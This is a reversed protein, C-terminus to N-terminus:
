HLCRTALALLPQPWVGLLLMGAMCIFLVVRVTWPVTIRTAAEPAPDAWAGRLVRLYYFLAIVAGAVAIGALAYFTPDIRARMVTAVLVFFKGLAGGLPPVGALSLMALLLALALLPSRRHLGMLTHRDATDHANAVVTLVAFVAIVAFLYQVLYYIVAAHGFDGGAAIGLLLFGANAISSYGLLRKVDTQALGGLAGYLLTIAALAMLVVPKAEWAPPLVDAFVLRLLVVFGAIKSGSALFAAAPTPAGQYVDPAWIQMPVMALKFGLGFLVMAFGFQYIGHATKDDNLAEHIVGFNLSDAAGFVYALGYAMFGASLAGLVLYKLGAELARAEGRLFSNLVYFTITVLELAVFLFIFDNASTLLMMGATALLVLTSFETGGQKRLPEHADALLLVLAAAGLLVQKFVIAFRDLVFTGGFLAHHQPFVLFCSAVLVVLAGEALGRRILSTHKPWFAGALLGLVALVVVAIEMQLVYFAM